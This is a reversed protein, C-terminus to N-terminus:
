TSRYFVLSAFLLLLKSSVLDKACLEQIVVITIDAMENSVERLIEGGMRTWRQREDEIINTLFVLYELYWRFQICDRPFSYEHLHYGLWSVQFSGQFKVRAAILHISSVIPNGKSLTAYSPISCNAVKNLVFTKGSKFPGQIGM